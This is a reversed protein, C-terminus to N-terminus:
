WNLYPVRSHTIVRWLMMSAVIGVVAQLGNPPITTLSVAISDTLLVSTFFYGAVMICEAVIASMLHGLDGNWKKMMLGAILAMTGKIIFTPAAYVAYGSFIDALMSGIGAAAAGYFPGLMWASLLVVCDGLNVYGNATMPIQIVMTAVCCLAAFLSSIVLKRTNVKM